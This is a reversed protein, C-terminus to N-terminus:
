PRFTPASRWLTSSHFQWDLNRSPVDAVAFLIVATLKVWARESYRRSGGGEVARGFQSEADPIAAGAIVKAHRNACEPAATPDAGGSAVQCHLFPLITRKFCM